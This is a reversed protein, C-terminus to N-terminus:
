ELDLFRVHDVKCLYARIINRSRRENGGVSGAAIAAKTLPNARRDNTANRM